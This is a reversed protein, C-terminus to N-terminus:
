PTARGPQESGLTALGSEALDLRGLLLYAQRLVRQHRRAQEEDIGSGDRGALYRDENALLVGIVRRAKRADGLQSHATAWELYFNPDEFLGGHRDAVTAFETVALHPKGEALHHRALILTVEIERNVDRHRQRVRQLMIVGRQANEPDNLMERAIRLDEGFDDSPTVVTDRSAALQTSLTNMSTVVFVMAATCMALLFVAAALLFRTGRLEESSMVNIPPMMAGGGRPAGDFADLDSVADSTEINKAAENLLAEIDNERRGIMETIQEPSPGNTAESMQRVLADIDEQNILAESDENSDSHKTVLSDLEEQSLDSNVKATESLRSTKGQPEVSESVPAVSGADLEALLADIDDQGLASGQPKKSAGTTAPKAGDDGNMEALLADIDDQGLPGEKATEKTKKATKDGEGNMEALLADIDDQGLPGEQATEKTKEPDKDEGGNMEALLADIDDQGLPGEKPTEEAKESAVEAEGEGSMEALMADIADQGLPGEAEPKETKETKEPAADAEGEGNMEALMADIADQGLPGEPSPTSSPKEAPPSAPAEQQKPQVKPVAPLSGSLSAFLADIEEQTMARPEDAM